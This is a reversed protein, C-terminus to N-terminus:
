NWFICYETMGELLEREKKVKPKTVPEHICKLIERCTAECEIIAQCELIAQTKNCPSAIEACRNEKKHSESKDMVM